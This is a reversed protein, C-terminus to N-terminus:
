SVRRLIRNNILEARYYQFIRWPDQRTHLENAHDTIVKRLEEETLKPEYSNPLPKGTAETALTDSDQKKKIANRFIRVCALAQPTKITGTNELEEGLMYTSTLITSKRGTASVPVESLMNTKANKHFAAWTWQATIEIPQDSPPEASFQEEHRALITQQGSKLFEDIGDYVYAITEAIIASFSKLKELAARNNHLSIRNEHDIVICHANDAPSM